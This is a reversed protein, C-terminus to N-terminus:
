DANSGDYISFEYGHEQCHVGYSLKYIMASPERPRPNSERGSTGINCKEWCTENLDEFFYRSM